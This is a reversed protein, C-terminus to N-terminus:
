RPAVTDMIFEEGNINLSEIQLEDGKAGWESRLKRQTDENRCNSLNLGAEVTGKDALNASRVLELTLTGEDDDALDLVRWTKRVVEKTEIESHLAEGLEVTKGTLIDSAKIMMKMHSHKGVVRREASNVVCARGKVVIVDGRLVKNAAKSHHLDVGVATDGASVGELLSKDTTKTPVFVGMRMQKQEEKMKTRLRDEEKRSLGGARAGPRERPGERQRLLKAHQAALANLEKKGPQTRQKVQDEVVVTKPQSFKHLVFQAVVSVIVGLLALVQVVRGDIAEQGEPLIAGM